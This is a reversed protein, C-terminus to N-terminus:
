GCGWGAGGWGWRHNDLDSLLVNNDGDVALGQPHHLKAMTGQGDRAPAPPHINIMDATVITTLPISLTAHMPMCTWGPQYRSGPCLDSHGKNPVAPKALPQRVRSRYCRCRWRRVQLGPQGAGGPHEGGRQWGGHTHPQQWLGGGAHHRRRVPGPRLPPLAPRVQRARGPLRAPRLRSPLLCSRPYACQSGTM